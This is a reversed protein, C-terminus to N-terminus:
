FPLDEEEAIIAEHDISPQAREIPKVSGLIPQADREAQTMADYVARDLNQKVCHTDGYKSNQMEIATLNLYCGKQGLYLHADEIPIVLCTKTATKGKINTVFAGNLKRLDVKINSNAM